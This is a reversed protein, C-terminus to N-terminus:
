SCPELSADRGCSGRFLKGGPRMQHFGTQGEWSGIFGSQGEIGVGKLLRQLRGNIIMSIIKSAADLGQRGVIPAFLFHLAVFAHIPTVCMFQVFVLTTMM